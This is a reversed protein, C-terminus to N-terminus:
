MPPRRSRPRSIIREVEAIPVKYLEAVQAGTM